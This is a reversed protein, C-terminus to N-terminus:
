FLEILEQYADRMDEDEVDESYMWLIKGDSVAFIDERTKEETTLEVLVLEMSEGDEEHNTTALLHHSTVPDIENEESFGVMMFFLDQVGEHMFEEVAQMREDQTNANYFGNVFSTILENESNADEEHEETSEEEDKSETSNVEENVEEEAAGVDETEDVSAEEGCAALSGAILLSSVLLLGKKM